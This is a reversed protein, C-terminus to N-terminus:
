EEDLQEEGKHRSGFPWVVSKKLPPLPLGQEVYCMLEGYTIGRAEAQAGREAYNYDPQRQIYETKAKAYHKPPRCVFCFKRRGKELPRGCRACHTAGVVPRIDM